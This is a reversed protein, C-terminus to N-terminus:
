GTGRINVTEIYRPLIVQDSFTIFFLSFLFHRFGSRWKEGDINARYEAGVMTGSKSGASWALQLQQQYVLGLLNIVAAM